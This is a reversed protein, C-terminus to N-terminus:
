QRLYLFMTTIEVDTTFATPSVVSLELESLQPRRSGVGECYLEARLVPTNVLRYFVFGTVPLAPRLVVGLDEGGLLDTVINGVTRNTAPVLLLDDALATGENSIDPFM